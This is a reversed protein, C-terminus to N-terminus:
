AIMRLGSSIDFMWLWGTFSANEQVVFVWQECWGENSIASRGICLMTREVGVRCGLNDNSEEEVGWTPLGRTSLFLLFIGLCNVGVHDWFSRICLSPHWDCEDAMAPSRHGYDIWLLLRPQRLMQHFNSILYFTKPRLSDQDNRCVPLYAQCSRLVHWKWM